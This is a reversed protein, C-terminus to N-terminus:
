RWVFAPYIDLDGRVHRALLRAQTLFCIGVEMKEKLFPHEIVERKRRQYAALFEKRSSANMQVDGSPGFVFSGSRVEGRNIMAFVLRDVFSARFEEMLDLALSPRGPRETHLFGVYPDLGVTELASRLDNALLAYGFSLMANVPDRPPRRSRSSFRLREDDSLLMANFVSFYNASAEGELGRLLDLASAARVKKQAHSLMNITRRLDNANISDPHNRLFRSVVQRQNAVKAAICMRAINSSREDSDSIRYQQRRLLVNGRIPGEMRALFRGFGNLYSITTGQAACFEALPPSVGIGFGFCVIEGVAAVPFQGIKKKDHRVIIAAGDKHLYAQEQTVYLTNQIHRM